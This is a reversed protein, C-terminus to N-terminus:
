NCRIFSSINGLYQLLYSRQAQTPFCLVRWHKERGEQWLSTTSCSSASFPPVDMGVSRSRDREGAVMLWMLNIALVPNWHSRTAWSHSWHATSLGVHCHRCQQEFACFSCSNLETAIPRQPMKRPTTALCNLGSMEKLQLKWQCLLSPFTTRQLNLRPSSVQVSFKTNLGCPQCSPSVWTPIWWAPKM